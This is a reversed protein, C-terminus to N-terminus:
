NDRLDWNCNLISSTSTSRITFNLLFDLICTKQFEASTRTRHPSTEGSKPASDYSTPVFVMFRKGRPNLDKERLVKGM